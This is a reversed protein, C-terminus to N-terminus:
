SGRGADKGGKETRREFLGRLLANLSRYVGDASVAVSFKRNFALGCLLVELGGRMNERELLRMLKKVSARCDKLQQLPDMGPSFSAPMLGCLFLLSPKQSKVKELIEEAGANSGGDAASYGAAQLLDMIIGKTEGSDGEVSAILAEGSVPGAAGEGGPQLRELVAVLSRHGSLLLPIGFRGDKEVQRVTGAFKKVIGEVARQRYDAPLDKIEDALKLAEQTEGGCIRASIEEVMKKVAKKRKEPQLSRRSYYGEPAPSASIVISPPGPFTGFSIKYTKDEVSDFKLSRKKFGTAILGAAKEAAEVPLAVGAPKLVAAATSLDRALYFVVDGEGALGTILPGESKVAAAILLSGDEMRFHRGFDKGSGAGNDTM